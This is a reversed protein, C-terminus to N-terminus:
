GDARWLFSLGLGMVLLGALVGLGLQGTAPVSVGALGSCASPPPYIPCGPGGFSCDQKVNGQPRPGTPVTEPPDIAQLENPDGIGNGNADTWQRDFKGDHNSDCKGHAPGDQTGDLNNDERYTVGNYTGDHDDDTWTELIVKSISIVEAAHSQKTGDPTDDFFWRDITGDHNQDEGWETQARAPNLAALTCGAFLLAWLLRSRVRNALPRVNHLEISTM